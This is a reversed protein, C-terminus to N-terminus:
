ALRLSLVYDRKPPHPPPPPFLTEVSEAGLSFGTNRIWASRHSYPDPGSKESQHPDPDPDSMKRHHPDPDQEEDFLHYSSGSTLIGEVAGNHTERRM